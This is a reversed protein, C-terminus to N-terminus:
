KNKERIRAITNKRESLNLFVGWLIYSYHQKTYSHVIESCVKQMFDRFHPALYASIWSLLYEFNRM